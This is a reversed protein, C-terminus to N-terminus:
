FSHTSLTRIRSVGIGGRHAAYRRGFSNPVEVGRTGTERLVQDLIRLASYLYRTHRNGLAGGILYM